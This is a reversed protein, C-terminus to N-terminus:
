LWVLFGLFSGRFGTRFFNKKLIWLVKMVRIKFKVPISQNHFIALTEKQLDNHFTVALWIGSSRGTKWYFSPWLEFILLQQNAPFFSLMAPLMTWNPYVFVIFEKETYLFKYVFNPLIHNGQCHNKSFICNRGWWLHSYSNNELPSNPLPPLCSLFFFHAWEKQTLSRSNPAALAHSSSSKTLTPM